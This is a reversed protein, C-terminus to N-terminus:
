ASALVCLRFNLGNKDRTLWNSIERKLDNKKSDDNQSTQLQFIVIVYFYVIGNDNLSLDKYNKWM